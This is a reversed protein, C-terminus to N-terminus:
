AGAIRRFNRNLRSLTEGEIHEAVFLCGRFEPAGVIAHMTASGTERLYRKALACADLFLRAV